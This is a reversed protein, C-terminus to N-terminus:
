IIEYEGDSDTKISSSFLAKLANILYVTDKVGATEYSSHMSLQPLGIDVTNISVHTSSINGLTSGGRMDSRNTFHQVPADARRCLETFIASSVADTTYTQSASHKIVIGGNMIPRHSTDSTEPHNPHVAHANDASVMFSATLANKLTSQTGGLAENISTLTDLLLTSDAGQKTSSGVEENDSVYMLSVSDSKDSNLLAIASAYVCQLDDLRPSSVFENDLGWVYGDTMPYLFLESSITEEESVGACEAVAKKFQGKVNNSGCIPQMDTAPNYSANENANRNMHIALSPIIFLPRQLDILKSIVKGNECTTIRGACSLPRDLWTACLMGGYKETNIRTYGVTDSEPNPKIKFSPSDSHTASIMYSHAKGSEPIKFAIFSSQNRTLYYKGGAKIDFPKSESLRTYGNEEFMNCLSSVTHFATPSKKIFSLLGSTIDNM